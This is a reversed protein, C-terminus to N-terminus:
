ADDEVPPSEGTGFFGPPQNLFAELAPGISRSLFGGWLAADAEDYYRFWVDGSDVTERTPEFRQLYHGRVESPLASVFARDPEPLTRAVTNIIEIAERRRIEPLLRWLRERHFGTGLTASQAIEFEVIFATGARPDWGSQRAQIAIM